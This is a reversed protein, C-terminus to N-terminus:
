LTSWSNRKQLDQPAPKNSRSTLAQIGEDMNQTKNPQINEDADKRDNVGNAPHEIRSTSESQTTSHAQQTTLPQDGGQVSQAAEINGPGRTQEGNTTSDPRLTLSMESGSVQITPLPGSPSRYLHHTDGPALLYSQQGAGYHQQSVAQLSAAM